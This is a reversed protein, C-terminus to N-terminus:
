SLPQIIGAGTGLDLKRVRVPRWTTSGILHCSQFRDQTVYMVPDGPQGDWIADDAAEAYFYAYRNRTELVYKQEGYRLNWWGETAWRGYEACADPAFYMIAVALPPGYDNRFYLRM